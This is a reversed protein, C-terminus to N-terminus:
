NKIMKQLHHLHIWKTPHQYLLLDSRNARNLHYTLMSKVLSKQSATYLCFVHRTFWMPSFGYRHEVWFHIKKLETTTFVVFWLLSYLYNETNKQKGKESSPLRLSEMMNTWAYMSKSVVSVLMSSRFGFKAKNGTGTGTFTSVLSSISSFSVLTKAFTGTLWALPLKILVEFTWSLFGSMRTRDDSNMGSGTLISGSDIEESSLSKSDGGSRVSSKNRKYALFTSATLFLSSNQIQKLIFSGYVWMRLIIEM